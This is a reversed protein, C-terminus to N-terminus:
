KALAKVASAAADKVSQRSKSAAVSRLADVASKDGRAEITRIAAQQVDPYGTQLLAAELAGTLEKDAKGVSSLRNVAYIRIQTPYKGKIVQILFPKASALPAESGVNVATSAAQEQPWVPHLQHVFLDQNDAFHSGGLARLVADVCDFPTADNLGISRLLTVDSATLQLKGIAEIAAARVGSEPSKVQELYLPRLDERRSNGLNRIIAEQVSPSKEAALASKLTEVVSDSAKSGALQGAASSRDLACPAYRLIAPLQQPTWHNDPVDKLLDHDPDMLVAAPSEVAPLTFTQDAKNLRLSQREIRGDPWIAAFQLPVDYVPTGDSTDQTQKVHVSVQQASSDFSWTMDLVPHGPKFLWQDFFPEVNKGTEEFFAKELDMSDVPTYGYRRLYHGLGRFFDGDGLERRLMHLILGGKPYTHSDFMADGSPYLHTSVPRKYQRSEYLYGQRAGERDQDYADKGNQHEIFIMEFFTAFSENLWIDGWFKCTILDGFWQHALEHSNVWTDPWKGSRADGLMNAGLTTASVNEMGGGFDLMSNQAYKPWAYKVGLRDSFFSLMDPTNGYATPIYHGMGKPVVYYLPVGRWVTKQVDVLGGALSLLYTSHPQTMTWRYTRTHHAADHMVPGEAGNGIVVWEEPVTTITESTCKDNPYDYCPVWNRNTETEGQTWFGAQREPYQPDTDIWHFGGLGNAGGVVEARNMRYKIEVTTNAGRAIPSAPTITLTAGEHKFPTSAGNVTVSHITLGPGADFVIHSLSDRLPTITHTVDGDATHPGPHLTLLLKLHQDHYDRSRAYHMTALPPKFPNQPAPQQQAQAISSLALTIAAAQVALSNTVPRL